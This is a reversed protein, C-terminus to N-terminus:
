LWGRLRYVQFGIAEHLWDRFALIRHRPDKLARLDYSGEPCPSSRVPVGAKEFTAAARRMHLPNTVLLVRKWGRRTVLDRVAAAEDRTNQVRGVDEVPYSLGLRRMQERVTPVASIRDELGLRTLVLRPAYGQELLEYAHLLRRQAQNELAGDSWIDSSLVVVADARQPADARLISWALMGALPSYMVVLIGASILVATAWLVIRARTLGVVAGLLGAALLLDPSQLPTIADLGLHWGGVWVLLGLLLGMGAQRLLTRWNPHRTDPLAPQHDASMLVAVHRKSPESDAWDRM